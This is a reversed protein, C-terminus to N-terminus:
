ARRAMPIVNDAPKVPEPQVQGTVSWVHDAWAALADRVQSEMRASQSYHRETVSPDLHNLVLDRVERSVGQDKLWNSIARRFDHLSVDSVDVGEVKISSRLEILARTVSEGNIHFTRPTKGKRQRKADAPFIWDGAASPADHYGKAADLAAREKRIAIAQRFLAVAQWSLPLRQERGNKTRGQIVKGRKNVDGSIVWVPNDTDLGQLESLRAGAVETRRQGTVIALQLILGVSQTAKHHKGVKYPEGDKRLRQPGLGRGPESIRKDAANWLAAMEADTPTRARPINSARRGIGKAPNSKALRQRMAWRYVGGIAAKTRDAQVRAGKAEIAKCIEVVHDTTVDSAPLKGIKPFADRELSYRYGIKTTDALDPHEALCKEALAKFTIEEAKAAKEAVPDAGQDIAAIHELALSRAKTLPFHDPEYDGLRLKRRDKHRNVYFVYFTASGTPRTVMVLRQVGEFRWEQQTKGVAGKIIRKVALDNFPAVNAAKRGM